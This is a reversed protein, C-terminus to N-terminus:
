LLNVGNHARSAAALASETAADEVRVAFAPSMLTVAEGVDIWAVEVSEDTCRPQGGIYECRYVLAVVGQRLNKYVGTLPGVRVEVGTEEFVERAVGEEFTEELELVGGPAQWQANDRRRILLVRGVQDFTVGAVSVSHLPTSNM